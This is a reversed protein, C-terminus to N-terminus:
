HHYEQLLLTMWGSASLGKPKYFQTGARHVFTYAQQDKRWGLMATQYTMALYKGPNAKFKETGKAIDGKVQEQEGISEYSSVGAFNLKSFKWKSPDVDSYEDVVDTTKSTVPPHAVTQTPKPKSTAVKKKNAVNNRHKPAKDETDEEEGASQQTGGKPKPKKKAPQKKVQEGQINESQAQAASEQDDKKTPKKRKEPPPGGPSPKIARKTEEEKDGINDDHSDVEARFVAIDDMAEKLCERLAQQSGEGNALTLYDVGFKKQRNAIQFELKSIIAHEKFKFCQLGMANCCNSTMRKGKDACGEKPPDDDDYRSSDNREM